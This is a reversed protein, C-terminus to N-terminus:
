RSLYPSQLFAQDLAATAAGAMGANDLLARYAIMGWAVPLTKAAAIGADVAVQEPVSLRARRLDVVEIVLTQRPYSYQQVSPYYPSAGPYGWYGGYASGWQGSTTSGSGTGTVGFVGIGLEPADSPTVQVFGREQMHRAVSAIIEDSRAEDLMGPTVARSDSVDATTVQPAVAFTTYAAFDVEPDYFTAIVSEEFRVNEAPPQVCAASVGVSAACVALGLIRRRM